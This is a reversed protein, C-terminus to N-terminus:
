EFKVEARYSKYNDSPNVRFLAKNKMKNADLSFNFISCDSIVTTDGGLVGTKFQGFLIASTITDEIAPQLHLIIHTNVANTPLKSLDVSVISDTIIGSQLPLNEGIIKDNKTCGYFLIILIFGIYM